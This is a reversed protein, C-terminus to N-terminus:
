RPEGNAYLVLEEAQTWEPGLVRMAVDVTDGAPSMTAGSQYKKDAIMECLLGYSVMVKGALFADAAATVDIEGSTRFSSLSVNVPLCGM